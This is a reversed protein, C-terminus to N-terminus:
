LISFPSDRLQEQRRKVDRLWSPDAEGGENFLNLILRAANEKLSFEKMLWSLKQQDNPGGPTGFLWEWQKATVGDMFKGIMEREGKVINLARTSDIEGIKAQAQRSLVQNLMAVSGKVETDAEVNARQARINRLNERMTKIQTANAAGSVAAAGINSAAHALNGAPTSADFRAALIPNVGANAMDAMRRSVATNSMYEQWDRNLQAQYADWRRQRRAGRGAMWGGILTSVIDGGGGFTNGSGATNGSTQPTPIGYTQVGM